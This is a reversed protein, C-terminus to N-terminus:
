TPRLKCLINNYVEYYRLAVSLPNWSQYAHMLGQDKNRSMAYSSGLIYDIGRAFDIASYPDALYGTERHIISEKCGTTDFAVVPIGCSVSESVVQPANEILSPVLVADTSSYYLAMNKESNNRRIGVCSIGEVMKPSICPSGLAVLMIEERPYTISHLAKLLHHWGKNPSSTANIGTFLLIKKNQPLGLAKRTFSKNRFCFIDQPIPNHILASDLGKFLVSERASSLLWSSPSIIFPRMRWCKRKREWAWRDFDLGTIHAPKNYSYYSFRPVNVSYQSRFSRFFFFVLSILLPLAHVIIYYPSPRAVLLPSSVVFFLISTLCTNAIVSVPSLHKIVSSRPIHSM